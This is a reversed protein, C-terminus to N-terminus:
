TSNFNKKHLQSSNLKKKSQKLIFLNQQTIVKNDEHNEPILSNNQIGHKIKLSLFSTKDQQHNEIINGLKKFVHILIYQDFTLVLM